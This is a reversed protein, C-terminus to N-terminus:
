NWSAFDDLDLSGGTDDLSGGVVGWEVSDVQRGGNTLPGLEGSATGDLALSLSGDGAGARWALRVHRWGAAFAVEQGVPTVAFSGDDRRAELVAEIGSAGNSQLVLRFTVGGGSSRAVFQELRDTPM